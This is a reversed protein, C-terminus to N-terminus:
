SSISRHQSYAASSLALKLSIKELKAAMWLRMYCDKNLEVWYIYEREWTQLIPLKNFANQKHNHQNPQM